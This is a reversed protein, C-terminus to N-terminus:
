KRPRSKPHRSNKFLYIDRTESGDTLKYFPGSSAGNAEDGWIVTFWGELSVQDDAFVPVTAVMSLVCGALFAKLWTGYVGNKKL